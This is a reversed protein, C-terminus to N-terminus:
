RFKDLALEKDRVSAEDYGPVFYSQAFGFSKSSRNQGADDRRFELVSKGAIM